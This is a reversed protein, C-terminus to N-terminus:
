RHRYGLAIREAALLAVRRRETIVEIREVLPDSAKLIYPAHFAARGAEPGRAVALVAEIHRASIDLDIAALGVAPLAGATVALDRLRSM